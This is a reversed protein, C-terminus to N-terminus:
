FLSQKAGCHLNEVANALAEQFSRRDARVEKSSFEGDPNWGRKIVINESNPDVEVRAYKHIYGKFPHVKWQGSLDVWREGKQIVRKKGWKVEVGTEDVSIQDGVYKKVARLEKLVSSEKLVKHAVRADKEKKRLVKERKLRAQRRDEKEREQQQKKHEREQKRREAERRRLIEHTM